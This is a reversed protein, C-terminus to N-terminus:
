YTVAFRQSQRCVLIDKSAEEKDKKDGVAVTFRLIDGYQIINRGKFNKIYYLVEFKLESNTLNLMNRNAPLLGTSSPPSPTSLSSSSVSAGFSSQRGQQDYCDSQGDDQNDNSTQHQKAQRMSTHNSFSNASSLGSLGEGSADDDEDDRRPQFSNQTIHDRTPILVEDDESEDFEEEHYENDDAGDFGGVSRRAKVVPVYRPTGREDSTGDVGYTALGLSSMEVGDEYESASNSDIWNDNFQSDEYGEFEGNVRRESAGIAEAVFEPDNFRCIGDSQFTEVARQANKGPLEHLSCGGVINGTVSHELLSQVLHTRVRLSLILLSVRIKQRHNQDYLFSSDEAMLNENEWPSKKARGKSKKLNVKGGGFYRNAYSTRKIMSEGNNTAAVRPNQQQPTNSPTFIYDSESASSVLQREGRGTLRQTSANSAAMTRHPSQNM